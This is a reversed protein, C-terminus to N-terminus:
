KMWSCCWLHCCFSEAKEYRNYDHGLTKCINFNPWPYFFSNPFAVINKNKDIESFFKRTLLYPGTTDMVEISDKWALPKDLQILKQIFSNGPSSGLISNMLNPERDYAIGCFFDLDLLCDFKKYVEFDTDIYIGGINNLIELRLLDSKQGLCTTTNFEKINKFEGISHIDEDRWLKYSWDKPLSNKIKECRQKEDSPLDGGLWIQHIIKPIKNKNLNRNKYDNFREELKKWDNEQKRDNNFYYSYQMSESFSPWSIKPKNERQLTKLIQRCTGELTFYKEYVERGRKIMDNIQQRNYTLLKNKLSNIEDVHVLVCFSNWDIENKFPLWEKDYIFVPISNLQLVEYLRFSQAGYGRPCLSFLSRKTVDIFENFRSQQVNVNWHQPSFYFHKDHGYNAYLINRINHTISGVFSCFIDKKVETCLNYDLRSCILPIPIGSRNGGAEFSLTGVPLKEAVADDHQSVTFYKGPPLSDLHKQIIDRSLMNQGPTSTFVGTNYCNTWYIPILTYGTDDFKSKNTIYFNYFYEELYKGKHYPPYPPYDPTPRLKAFDLESM